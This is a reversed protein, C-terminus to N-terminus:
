AGISSFRDTAYPAQRKQCCFCTPLDVQCSMIYCSILHHGDIALPRQFTRPWAPGTARKTFRGFGRKRFHWCLWSFPRRSWSIGSIASAGVEWWKSGLRGLDCVKPVRDAVPLIGASMMDIENMHLKNFCSWVDSMNCMMYESKMISM